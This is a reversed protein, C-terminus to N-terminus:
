GVGNVERLDGRKPQPPEPERIVQAGPAPPRPNGQSNEVPPPQAREQHEPPKTPFSISLVGEPPSNRAKWCPDILVLAVGRQGQVLFWAAGLVLLVWSNLGERM